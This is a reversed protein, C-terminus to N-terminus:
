RRRCLQQYLELSRAAVADWSRPGAVEALVRARTEPGDDVHAVIAAALAREDGPATLYSDDLALEVLGGARSAVVPVGYGIATSGVMTQSAEIYPLVALSTGRFFSEIEAEPLYRREFDVREDQLPLTSPGMGVVRLRVDPRVQWVHPMARALVDLGKYPELRGFFGLQRQSPPPLPIPHLTLGIPMTAVRQSARLRLREILVESHVVVADARYRWVNRAADLLWRKLPNSAVTQGPHPTPDHVTLVIPARPIVALVRPDVGEHAHIVDPHFRSLEHRIDLLARVAALDRGRGPLSVIRVGAARAVELASDRELEDGAFEIAHDRCLLIVSSGARALAAAQESAYKLFWDCTLVVRMPGAASGSM